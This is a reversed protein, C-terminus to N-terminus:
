VLNKNIKDPLSLYYKGEDIKGRKICGKGYIKCKRRLEGLLYKYQDTDLKQRNILNLMSQIRYKDKCKYIKSLQDLHGGEKITLIEDILFIPYNLSVRLWFDYDECVPLTEDFKGIKEFVIRKIVATSISVSCLKLCNKFIYGRPKMHKKKPNHIKGDKYWLEQTHFVLNENCNAIYRDGEELKNNTWRDDSDLFAIYEGRAEKLGRNRANSPGNNEQYIYLFQSDYRRLRDRSNDTSGDDVVVLEFDKFTQALVSKVATEIFNERNYTPIIVSFKPAM